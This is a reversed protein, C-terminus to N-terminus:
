ENPLLSNLFNSEIYASATFAVGEGQGQGQQSSSSTTTTHNHSHPVTGGGPLPLFRSSLTRFEFLHARQRMLRQVLTPVKSSGFFVFAGAEAMLNLEFLFLQVEDPPALLGATALHLFGPSALLARSTLFGAQELYSLSAPDQENTSIYFNSQLGLERQLQQLASVFDEVGRCNLPLADGEYYRSAEDGRRWHVVVFPDLFLENMDVLLRLLTRYQWMVDPQFVVPFTKEPSFHYDTYRYLGCGEHRHDWSAEGETVRVGRLEDVYPPPIYPTSNSNNSESESKDKDKDQSDDKSNSPFPQAAMAAESLWSEAQDTFWAIDRYVGRPYVCGASGGEGGLGQLLVDDALLASCSVGPPLVLYDGVCFHINDYHPVKTRLISVQRGHLVTFQFWADNVNLYSNAFGETTPLLLFPETNVANKARQWLLFSINIVCLLLIFLLVILKIKISKTKIRGKNM